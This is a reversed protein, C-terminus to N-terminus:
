EASCTRRLYADVRANSWDAAKSYVDCALQDVIENQNVPYPERKEPEECTWEIGAETQLWIAEQEHRPLEAVFVGVMGRVIEDYADWVVSEQDQIQVCIEDWTTKLEFDDGSLRETMQELDRIVNRTVRDAAIEAVRRVIDAENLKDSM